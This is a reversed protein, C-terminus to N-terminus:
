LRLFLKYKFLIGAVIFYFIAYFLGYVATGVVPPMWSFCADYFLQYPTNGDIDIWNTMIDFLIQLVIFIALPNMGMWMLPQIAKRLRPAFSAKVEASYDIVIFFLTLMTMSTSLVAFLFTTTWLRKNFPLMLSCPYIPIVCLLAIILWTKIM